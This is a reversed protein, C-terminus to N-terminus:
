VPVWNLEFTVNTNGPETSGYLYWSGSSSIRLPEAFKRSLVDTPYKETDSYLQLTGGTESEIYDVRNITGGDRFAHFSRIYLAESWQVAPVPITRVLSAGVGGIWALASIDRVTMAARINEKQIGVGRAPTGQYIVIRGPVNGYRRLYFGDIKGTLHLERIQNYIRNGTKLRIEIPYDSYLSLDATRGINCETAAVWGIDMIRIVRKEFEVYDPFLRTDVDGKINNSFAPM